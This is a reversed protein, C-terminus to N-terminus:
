TQSAEVIKETVPKSLNYRYIAIFFGIVLFFVGFWVLGIFPKYSFDIVFSESGFGFVANFENPIDSSQMGVLGIKLNKGPIDLMAPSINGSEMSIESFMTDIKEKGEYKFKVVAGIHMSSQNGMGGSMDFKMLTVTMSKDFPLTIEEGKKAVIHNTDAIDEISKPSVYLDTSIKSVVGPEFFPAQFQNFASFYVIPNAIHTVGDKEIKVNYKFKMRDQKEIEIREKNLYTVNYGFVSNTTNPTLIVSKTDSYAGSFLSGLILLSFGFHSIFAGTVKFKKFVFRAFFELNIVVSFLSTFVLFMNLIEKVGFFFLVVTGALAIGGSILLKKAITKFDTQNWSLYLSIANTLLIIIAVPLNWNTYSQSDIKVEKILPLSTGIFVIVSSLIIFISGLSLFFEKSTVNFNIRKIELNRIRFILVVISFILFTLLFGLLLLYVFQGPDSFSHVSSNSLVGSRTLFTAYVVLLFTFCALIYNSIVLGGTRKQVLLTHVLATAVLWPILSSNEVPDWGWFGGWGLTEYAWFGGLMIGLGLIGSAFLNWPIAFNIWNQFDKKIFGAIALVFPVTLAAYGAFLIPPHIVMWYNELIPNMGKGNEPSFGVAINQDAFSEWVFDFPSKSILMVFLFGLILTYQAMVISEYNHKKVYPLLFVGILTIMLSWLLFSGEQGAYFSSMLLGLSLEKSSYNWIYTYQFNHALINTLLFGSIFLVGAVVTLFMMRALKNFKEDKAYSIFYIISSALSLGFLLYVILKGLM